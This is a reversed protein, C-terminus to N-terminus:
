FTNKELPNALKLQPKEQPLTAISTSNHGTINVKPLSDTANVGLTLSNANM